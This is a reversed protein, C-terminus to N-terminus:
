RTHARVSAIYMYIGHLDEERVDPTCPTARCACVCKCPLARACVCVSEGVGGTASVRMRSCRAWTTLCVRVFACVFVYVRAHACLVCMRESDRECVCPTARAGM